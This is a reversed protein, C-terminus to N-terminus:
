YLIIQQYCKFRQFNVYIYKTLTLMCIKEFYKKHHLDYCVSKLIKGYKM